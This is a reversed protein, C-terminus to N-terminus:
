DIPTADTTTTSRNSSLSLPYPEGADHYEVLDGPETGAAAGAPLEVVSHARWVFPGLRYPELGSIVKLVRGARDLYLVDIPFAMGICHVSQCPVIVLGEGAPLQTRGLLGQGRRLFSDAVGAHEALVIGRTLNVVRVYRM